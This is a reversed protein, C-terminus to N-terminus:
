ARPHSHCCLWLNGPISGLCLVWDRDEQREGALGFGLLLGKVRGSAGGTGEDEGREDIGWQRFM